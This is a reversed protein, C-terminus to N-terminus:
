KRAKRKAELLRETYTLDPESKASSAVPDGASGSSQLSKARVLTGEATPLNGTLAESPEFRASARDQANQTSLREKTKLLTDLRMAPASEKAVSGRIADWATSVWGVGVSVRRVFVDGLFVCCGVLVLWPWIDQIAGAKGLGERFPNAALVAELGGEALNSAVSGAEGGDPKYSALTQILANNMERIRFEDGFPVNIGTALMTKGGEPVVNVFYSGAREVSFTGVYRGPATQAIEIPIPKLDPGLVSGNMKIFNLYDDDKDLANVIVQVEGNRVQTAISFKGTDAIPRMLWRVLQSLLKEHGPWRNWASAWRQGGDTALVATRGLGYQWVSLIPNEQGAPLPSSLITQVLPSDKPTSMVFGTIPPLVNDLGSLITHPIEVKPQIGSTNEYILPRAVRRAERMVVQPIARPSLVHFMKGGGATAIQRMLNVDADNGIAISTVTIGATKMDRTLQQFNDPATQGDTLVIMHKVSADSKRLERFAMQMAPYMVTGGDAQIKSIMPLIHTRGGVQQLPVVERAEGDFEIVGISDTPSLAKVAERAATKCLSMKEGEMSGSSDIVLMLAGVAIVKSNKIEFDVPMAEEIPTRTWGGAGLSDPSGIMMLGAGLQQTNRVLMQIQDDTFQTLSDASDGSTRPVGALIIADYAQLEALSGFMANTPQVVVEIDAKRLQEAILAFEGPTDFPEILLVRGKGRVYTYAAAENNQLQADDAPKDPTFKANFTFAAPQDITHRLPIVNKGPALEIEEDLLLQDEGGSSRTISLRGRTPTENSGTADADLAEYNSIVVRAEFPQGNRIDAPLDIKEVLVDAGNSMPAPVVDIGIGSSALRAAVAKADGITENGDTVIVIRRRSDEPMSAHALELAEELNTADAPGFDSETQRMPPIDDSYPPVEISANRGFVIVGARDERATDRHRTVSRTVFELMQLRRSQPISESQDLLYMVTIRDTTWVLQSGALAGIIATLVASRFIIAILRRTKGIAAMPRFSIWGLVPLLLLLWLYHPHDFSIRLGAM